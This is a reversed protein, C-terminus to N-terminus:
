RRGNAGLTAVGESGCGNVPDDCSPEPLLILSINDIAAPEDAV